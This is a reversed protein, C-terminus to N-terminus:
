SRKYCRYASMLMVFTFWMGGIMVGTVAAPGLCVLIGAGVTGGLCLAMSGLFAFVAAIISTAIVWGLEQRICTSFVPCCGLVFNTQHNESTTSSSDNPSENTNSSDSNNDSNGTFFDVINSIVEGILNM